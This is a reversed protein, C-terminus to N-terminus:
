KCSWSAVHFWSFSFQGPCCQGPLDVIPLLGTQQFVVWVVLKLIFVMKPRILRVLHRNQITSWYLQPTMFQHLLSSRVLEPRKNCGAGVVPDAVAESSLLMRPSWFFWPYYPVFHLLYGDHWLPLTWVYAQGTPCYSSRIQKPSAPKFIQWIRM